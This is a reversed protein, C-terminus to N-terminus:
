KDLYIPPAWAYNGNRDRLQLRFYKRCHWPETLQFRCRTIDPGGDGRVRFPHGHAMWSVLIAEECPSFEAEFVGDKWSLRKIEPGQSAYFDGRRLAEVLTKPERNEALIMTWGYFMDRTAVHTDDVALAPLRRGHSLLADWNVMDYARGIYRTSTNYVEIGDIDQLTNVVDWDFGCWYPHACFIVGGVAHVAAIAEEATEPKGNFGHPVGIALLHWLTGSEPHVPHLEIGSLLTMGEGDYSAVDNTVRHDTFAIVDYGHDAYSRIIGQPSCQGDSNTTHTHLNARYAHLERGFFDM